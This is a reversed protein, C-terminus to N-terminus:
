GYSDLGSFILVLSISQDSIFLRIIIYKFYRILSMVDILDM